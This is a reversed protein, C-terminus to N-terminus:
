RGERWVVTLTTGSGDSAIRLDAGVAAARETMGRIGYRDAAVLSPEFGRGNDSVSLRVVDGAQELTISASDARSHREINIAAERAIVLFQQAVHEPLTTTVGLDHSFRIGTRSAVRDALDRLGSALDDDHVTSDRLGTLTDRLEGIARTVDSRLLRLSAISEQGGQAIIRDIEFGVAALTSGTRDHLDRAIRLREGSEARRRMELLLRSNDIGVALADALGTLLQAVEDADRGDDEERFEVAVLGTVRGRSRLASYVGYVAESALGDRALPSGISRRAMLAQSAAAPLRGHEVRLSMSAGRGRVTTLVGDAMDDAGNVLHGDATTGDAHAGVLLLITAIAGPALGSMGEHGRDLVTDLDFEQPLSLSVRRLEVLLDNARM